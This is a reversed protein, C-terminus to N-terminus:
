IEILLCPRGVGYGQAYDVGIDHLATLIYDNQVYEAITKKGIIQAIYNVSKVMAYDIPDTLCSAFALDAEKAALQASEAEDESLSGDNVLRQALGSLRVSTTNAM